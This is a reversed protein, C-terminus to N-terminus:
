ARLAKNEKLMLANVFPYIAIVVIIIFIILVQFTFVKPALSFYMYPAFGMDTMMQGAQGGMKIPHFYEYYLIPLAALSGSLIGLLGIIFTEYVLMWALRTKQMGVAVMVGFERRREAVMMIITGLIGFGIVLFLIVKMIAGSDRDGNIQQVLEPQMKEWSMVRYPSHIKAKLEKVIHPVEDAENVLMALSTLLHDASYFSQATSLDMYILQRDLMPSPHKFIGRIPFLGAANIGHYGQGLLVLTDGVDIQLYKALTEGMLIGDDGKKLYKGRVLKSSIETLQDESQPDVGLVMAGKTLQKSSALAFSELRPVVLQIGPVSAIKEKLSDTEEFTNNITKNEWFDENQVQIHGSYFRVANEVMNEYSGEQMSTMYTSLIVGFFISAVTIITRRKNRWLNRWALKLDTKM